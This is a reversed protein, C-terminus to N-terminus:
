QIVFETYYLNTISGEGLFSNLETMVEERLAIKGEVTTIDEQKNAPLVMLISDRIRPLQKKLKDTLDDNKLELNMTVRLYRKGEKDALNVIFTDLAFMPGIKDTAKEEEAMDESVEESQASAPRNLSSIKGWMVFFGAGMVGMFLLSITIVILLTKKPM